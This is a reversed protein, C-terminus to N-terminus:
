GSVLFRPHSDGSMWRDLLQILRVPTTITVVAVMKQSNRSGMVSRPSVALGYMPM